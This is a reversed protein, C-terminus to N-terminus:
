NRYSNKLDFNVYFSEKEFSNSLCRIFCVGQALALSLSGLVELYSFINKKDCYHKPVFVLIRHHHKQFTPLFSFFNPLAGRGRMQVFDLLVATKRM